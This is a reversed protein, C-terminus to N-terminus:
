LVVPDPYEINVSLAVVKGTRRCLKETLPNIDSSLISAVAIESSNPRTIGLALNGFEATETGIYVFCSDQLALTQVWYFKEGIQHQTIEMINIDIPFETTETRVCFLAALVTFV